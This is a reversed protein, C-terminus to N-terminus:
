VRVSETPAVKTEKTLPKTEWRHKAGPHEPSLFTQGPCSHLNERFTGGPVAYDQWMVGRKQLEPVLLEVVDEYSGPNSVYVVNFGDIDTANFFDEFVDAVMEPTGVPTLGSNGFSMSEMFMRPTVPGEFQDFKAKMNKIVGTITNAASTNGDFVFPEDMPYQSMDIGTYASFKALSVEGTMNRKAKEFKANAEEITRGLVPTIAAFFKISSPDRGCKVAEARVAKTHALLGAKSSMDTYIGEAHKGAFEIGSKSAGAQFIVPTRQPSPHTQHYASMKHYKGNFEIKHIKKPDYATNSEIDWVAAGDEWSKEWLQYTLDLYEEAAAYRETSSPVTDKGMAKAASEGYSTVVNWGIRGRTLHDLSSWTRALIYPTGTIGFGVSETVAAMASVITVPDIMACNAGGKFMADMNGRYVDHGGYIDAFFISTIKGKDALKALWLYYDLRDKFRSIDDPDKWQGYPMHSGACAMDFFNLHMLKKVPSPEEIAGM